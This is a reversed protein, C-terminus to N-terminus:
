VHAGKGDYCFYVAAAAYLKCTTFLEDVSVWEDAHHPNERDGAGTTVIPVNAWTSLYTGDTAGPVGNFRPEKGTLETYAAAMSRVLPDDMPTETLPREEIVELSADLDPDELALKSLREQLRSVIGEHSQGPVTRIDLAVYASAPIVNMQPEGCDPGMLITPTLSPSGLFPDEGHREIEERELEEVAVVFRAARPLPNIGSRPMAGHAMRGRVTVGVRLAGKQKTCLQNEEPECIIAGDVEEAHGREIFAKIGAMMGEEDVPHCLVLKGPFSLGSDKIARVAVVAAALNGKTDCAGRGYIRDGLREAGFPPYSWDEARGETVVDTHAEFLLTKGPREGEWVAWVNPRGPAVEETQVEFGERELYDALFRAVRGENGEAEEPRYVSPIRVLEQALRALEERDIRRWVAELLDQFETSPEARPETL